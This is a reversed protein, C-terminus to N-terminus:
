SEKSINGSLQKRCKNEGKTGTKQCSSSYPCSICKGRKKARLIKFLALLVLVLIIIFLIIDAM